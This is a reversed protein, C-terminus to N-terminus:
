AVKRSAGRIHRLNLFPVVKRDRDGPRIPDPLACVKALLQVRSEEPDRFRFWHRLLRLLNM